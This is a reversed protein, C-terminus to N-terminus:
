RATTSVTLNIFNQSFSGETSEKVMPIIIDGKSLTADSADFTTASVDILKDSSSLGVITIEKIKAPNLATVSDAVPSFRCLGITVSNGGTSSLWGKILTVTCDVPVVYGITQQLQSPTLSVSTLTPSGGDNSIDMNAVGSGISKGYQYNATGIPVHGRMSITNSGILTQSTWQLNGDTGTASTGATKGLFSSNVANEFGKPNHRNIDNLNKHENGAM